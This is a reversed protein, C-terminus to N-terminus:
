YRPDKSCQSYFMQIEFRQVRKRHHSYLLYYQSKEEVLGSTNFVGNFFNDRFKKLISSSVVPIKSPNNVRFPISQEFQIM